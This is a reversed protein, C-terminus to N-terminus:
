EYFDIELILIKWKWFTGVLAFYKLAFTSYENPLFQTFDEGLIGYFHVFTGYVLVRTFIYIGVFFRIEMVECFGNLRREYGSPFSGLKIEKILFISWVLNNIRLSSVM